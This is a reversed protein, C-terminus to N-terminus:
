TPSEWNERVVHLTQTRITPSSSPDCILLNKVIYCEGPVNKLYIDFNIQAKTTTDLIDPYLLFYFGQPVILRAIQEISSKNKVKTGWLWLNTQGCNKINIHKKESDFTIEPAVLYANELMRSYISTQTELLVAQKRYVFYTLGIIITQIIPIFPQLKALANCISEM